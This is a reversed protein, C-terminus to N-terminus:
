KVGQIEALLKSKRIRFNSDNVSSVTSIEHDMAQTTKILDCDRLRMTYCVCVCVCVCVSVCVSAKAM